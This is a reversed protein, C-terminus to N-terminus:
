GENRAIAANAFMVAEELKTLALSQERSPPTCAVMRTALLWASERLAIYREGQDDKPSHYKFTNELRQEMEPSVPYKPDEPYKSMNDEKNPNLWKTHCPKCLDGIGPVDQYYSSNKPIPDGCHACHHEPKTM